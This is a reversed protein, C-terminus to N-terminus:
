NVTKSDKLSADGFQSSLKNQLEEVMIDAFSQMTSEYTEMFLGVTKSLSMGANFTTSSIISFLNGVTILTALKANGVKLAMKGNEKAIFEIFALRQNRVVEDQEEPTMDEMKKDKTNM